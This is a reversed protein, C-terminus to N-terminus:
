ELLDVDRNEDVVDDEVRDLLLGAVDVDLRPFARNGDPQSCGADQAFECVQRVLEELADGAAELDHRVQDGILRLQGLFAARRGAGIVAIHLQADRDERRHAALFDDDPQEVRLVAAEVELRKAELGACNLTELFEDALRASQDQQVAWGARSFGGRDVGRQAVQNVGM